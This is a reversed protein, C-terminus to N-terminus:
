YRPASRSAISLNLLAVICRASSMMFAAIALASFSLRWKLSLRNSYSFAQLARDWDRMWGM